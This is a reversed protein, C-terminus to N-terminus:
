LELTFTLSAVDWEIMSVELGKREVKCFLPYAVNTGSGACRCYLVKVYLHVEIIGLGKGFSKM